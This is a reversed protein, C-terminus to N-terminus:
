GTVRRLLVWRKGRSAVDTGVPVALVLKSRTNWAARLRKNAPDSEDRHDFSAYFGCDENSPDQKEAAKLARQIKGHYRRPPRRPAAFSEHVM